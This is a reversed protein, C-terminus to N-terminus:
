TYDHVTRSCEEHGTGLLSPVLRSFITLRATVCIRCACCVGLAGPPQERGSLVDTLSSAALTSADVVAHPIVTPTLYVLTGHRLIPHPNRTSDILALYDRAEVTWFDQLLLDAISVLPFPMGTCVYFQVSLSQGISCDLQM